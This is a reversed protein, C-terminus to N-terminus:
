SCVCLSPTSAHSIPNHRLKLVQLTVNQRLADALLAVDADSINNHTLTLHALKANTRLRDSLVEVLCQTDSHTVELTRVDSLLTMVAHAQELSFSVGSIALTHKRFVNLIYVAGCHSRDSGCLVTAVLTCCM